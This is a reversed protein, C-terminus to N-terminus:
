RSHFGTQPPSSNTVIECLIDYSVGDVGTLLRLIVTTATFSDSDFTMGVPVTITFSAISEGVQLWDSWDFTYIKKAGPDKDELKTFM